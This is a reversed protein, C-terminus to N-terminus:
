VFKATKTSGDLMRYFVCYNYDSNWCSFIFKRNDYLLVKKCVKKVDDWGTIPFKLFERDDLLTYTVSIENPAITANM